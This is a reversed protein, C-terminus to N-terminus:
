VKAAKGASRAAAKEVKRAKKAAQKEAAKAAKKDSKAAKEAQKKETKRRKRRTSKDEEHAVVMVEGPEAESVFVPQPEGFGFLAKLRRWLFMTLFVGLWRRDGGFVGSRLAKRRLLISPKLLRRLRM